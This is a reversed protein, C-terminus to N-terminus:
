LPLALQGPDYSGRIPLLDVNLDLGTQNWLEVKHDRCTVSPSDQACSKQETDYPNKDPLSRGTASPMCASAPYNHCLTCWTRM